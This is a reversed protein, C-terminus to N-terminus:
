KSIFMRNKINHNNTGSNSHSATNNSLIFHRVTQLNVSIVLTLNMIKLGKMHEIIKLINITNIPTINSSKSINAKDWTKSSLKLRHSVIIIKKNMSKAVMKTRTNSKINLTKQQVMTMSDSPRNKTNKIEIQGQNKLLSPNLKNIKKLHRRSTSKSKKIIM